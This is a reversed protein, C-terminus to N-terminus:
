PVPRCHFPALDYVGISVLEKVECHRGSGRVMAGVTSRHYALEVSLAQSCSSKIMAQRHTSWHIM